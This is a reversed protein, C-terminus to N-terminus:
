LRRFVNEIEADSLFLNRHIMDGARSEFIKYIKYPCVLLAALEKLEDRSDGEVVQDEYHLEYRMGINEIKKAAPHDEPTAASLYSVMFGERRRLKSTEWIGSHTKQGQMELM